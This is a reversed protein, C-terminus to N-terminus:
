LMPNYRTYRVCTLHVLWIAGCWTGHMDRTITSNFLFYNLKISGITPSVAEYKSGFLSAFLMNQGRMNVNQM